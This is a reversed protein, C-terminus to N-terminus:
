EVQLEDFINNLKHLILDEGIKKVEEDQAANSDNSVKKLESMLLDAFANELLSQSM